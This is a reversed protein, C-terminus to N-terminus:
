NPVVVIVGKDKPENSNYYDWKGIDSWIFFYSEGRKITSEQNLLPYPNPVVGFSSAVRMGKDSLNVFRVTSGQKVEIEEPAFGKDTYVVVVAGKKDLKLRGVSVAKDSVLSSVDSVPGSYAMSSALKIERGFNLSEDPPAEGIKGWFFGFFVMALVIIASFIYYIKNM